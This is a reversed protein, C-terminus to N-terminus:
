PLVRRMKSCHLVCVGGGDGDLHVVVHNIARTCPQARFGGVASYGWVRVQLFTIAQSTCVLCYVGGPLLWLMSLLLCVFGKRDAHLLPRATHQVAAPRFRKLSSCVGFEEHSSPLASWLMQLSCCHQVEQKGAVLWSCMTCTSRGIWVCVCVCHLQSGRERFPARGYAATLGRSDGGRGTVQQNTMCDWLGDCALVMFDAMGLQAAEPAGAPAGALVDVAVRTTDPLPTVAQAEPPLELQKYRCWVLVVLVCCCSRV